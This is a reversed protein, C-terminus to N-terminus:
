YAQSARRHRRSLSLAFVLPPERRIVTAHDTITKEKPRADAAASLQLDRRTMDLGLTYGYVHSLADAVKINRGGKNLCAVLEAEYHYNKTLSPYRHDAM